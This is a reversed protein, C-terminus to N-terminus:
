AAVEMATITSAVNAGVSDQTYPRNIYTERSSETAWQVQYTTASTTSPSDLYQLPTNLQGYNTNVRLVAVNAAEVGTGADGIYNAANGGTIKLYCRKQFDTVSICVYGILLIKSSSSSPTITVSMGSINSFSDSSTTATDTKTASVVQLISGASMASDPLQALGTIAGTTGNIAVPM